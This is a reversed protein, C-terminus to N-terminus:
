FDNDFAGGAAGFSCTGGVPTVGGDVACGDDVPTLFTFTGGLAGFSCTGGASKVGGKIACVEDAEPTLLAMLGGMAEGGLGTAM